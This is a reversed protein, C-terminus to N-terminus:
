CCSILDGGCCECCCDACILQSCCGMNSGGRRTQGGFSMTSIRALSARYEQNAPDMNCATQYLRLAEDFWGKKYAICGSLFYWEADKATIKSLMTEALGINSVSIANRIQTYASSNASNTNNSSYNGSYHSQNNNSTNKNKTIMDYAENISRMKESALEALPNDKYNDPHYKKALDRYAKKIEEDSSNENVGLVNYPNM